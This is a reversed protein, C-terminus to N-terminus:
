ARSVYDVLRNVGDSFADEPTLLSLVVFPETEFDYFFGPQVLVDRDELLGLVWTEESRIAPLRVPVYWGGEPVLPTVSSGQAVRVLTELNRRTRDQIEARTAATAEILAPAAHLVPASTSLFTDALLELRSLADHVKEPPGGTGIWGLKMQPLAAFKSLGDLAFVLTGRADLASLARKGHPVLPFAAFVEDSLIPLGLEALRGLEDKTLYSGTPNNPSV